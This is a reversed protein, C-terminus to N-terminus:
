PEPKQNLLFALSDSITLRCSKIKRDYLSAAKAPKGKQCFGMFILSRVSFFAPIGLLGHTPKGIRHTKPICNAHHTGNLYWQWSLNTRISM